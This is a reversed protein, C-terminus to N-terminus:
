NIEKLRQDDIDVDDPVIFKFMSLENDAIGTQESLSFQSVNGQQDHLVMKTLTNGDFCVKVSEVGGEVSKPTINFCGNTNTVSYQSWTEEDRHVLLAIPSANIAQNLDMVSVEEAFPNYIWVDKGDAVILSEDPAKLHWYFQNPYALAFVGSGKQIQKNNIDTVTQEFKAKLTSVETLKTKLASSEDAQVYQSALLPLALVFASLVKRM